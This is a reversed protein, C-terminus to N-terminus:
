FFNMLSKFATPPQLAGQSLEVIYKMLSLSLVRADLSVKWNQCTGKHEQCIRKQGCTM